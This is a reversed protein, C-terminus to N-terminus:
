RPTVPRKTARRAAFLERASTVTAARQVWRLLQARRRCDTITRRQTATLAISRAELIALLAEHLGALEGNRHGKVTARAEAQRAERRARHLPGHAPRLDLAPLPVRLPPATRRREPAAHPRSRTRRAAAGLFVRVLDTYLPRRASDLMTVGALAARGIAVARPGRGHALVSLVALEPRRRAEGARTVQPIQEPGLVDPVLVWRGDGMDIPRSCWRAVAPQTTLVLLRVPCQLRRRLSALYVPWVWRKAPDRRLQAEVVIALAPRGGKGTLALVLDARVEAPDIEAFEGEVVQAASFRPLPAACGERLLTAVLRRARLLELLVTHPLSPM